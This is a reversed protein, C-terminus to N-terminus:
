RASGLREALRASAHDIRAYVDGWTAADQDWPDRIAFPGAPQFDGLLRLKPRAILWRKAIAEAQPADMVLILDAAHVHSTELRRARHSGLDLGWSAALVIARPDAADQEQAALGFSAVSLQPARRALLAAAFPSRCLNGSCVVAVTRVPRPPLAPEGALSRRCDHVFASRADARLAAKAARRWLADRAAPRPFSTSTSPLSTM